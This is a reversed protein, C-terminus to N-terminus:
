NKQLTLFNILSQRIKTQIERLFKMFPSKRYNFPNCYESIFVTQNALRQSVIISKVLNPKYCKYIEM